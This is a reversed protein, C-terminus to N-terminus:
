IIRRQFGYQAVQKQYNRSVADTVTEGIQRVTDQSANGQITIQVNTSNSPSLVTRSQSPSGFGGGFTAFAPLTFRAPANILQSRLDQITRTNDKIALTNETIAFTNNLIFPDPEPKKPKKGFLGGFITGVIEGAIGILPAFPGGVAVGIGAGIAGLLNGGTAAGGPSPLSRGLSASLSSGVVAFATTAALTKANIRQKESIEALSLVKEDIASQKLVLGADVISKNAESFATGEGIDPMTLGLKNLGRNSIPSGLEGATTVGLKGLGSAAETIGLHHAEVIKSAQYDAALRIADSVLKAHLDGAEQISKQMENAQSTFGLGERLVRDLQEKLINTNAQRFANNIGAALQKGANIFMNGVSQEKIKENLDDIQKQTQRIEYQQRQWQESGYEINKALESQQEIMRDQTDVLQKELEVQADYGQRIADPLNFFSSVISDATTTIAEGINKIGSLLTEFNFVSDGVLQLSILLNRIEGNLKDIEESSQQAPNILADEFLKKIQILNEERNKSNKVLAAYAEDVKKTQASDPTLGGGPLKAKDIISKIEALKQSFNSMNLADNMSKKLSEFSMTKVQEMIKLEEKLQKLARQKDSIEQKIQARKDFGAASAIEGTLNNIVEYVGRQEELVSNIERLAGHYEVVGALALNIQRQIEQRMMMQEGALEEGIAFIDFPMKDGAGLLGSMAKLAAILEEPNSADNFAKALGVGTSLQKGIEDYGKIVDRLDSKTKIFEQKSKIQSDLNIQQIAGLMKYKSSIQGIANLVDIAIEGEMKSKAVMQDRLILLAAEATIQERLANQTGQIGGTIKGIVIVIENFIKKIDEATLNVNNGGNNINAIESTIINLRSALTGAAKAGDKMGAFNEKSLIGISQFTDILTKARILLALKDSGVDFGEVKIKEQNKFADLADLGLPVSTLPAVARKPIQGTLQNFEELTIIDKVLGGTVNSRAFEYTAERMGDISQALGRMVKSAKLADREVRRIGTSLEEFLSSRAISKELQALLASPIGTSVRTIRDAEIRLSNLQDANMDGADGAQELLNAIDVAQIGFEAFAATLREEEERWRATKDALEELQRSAELLKNLRERPVDFSEGMSTQKLAILIGKGKAVEGITERIAQRIKLLPGVLSSVIENKQTDSLILGKSYLEKADALDLLRKRNAAIETEGSGILANFIEQARSAAETEMRQAIQAETLHKGTGQVKRLTKEYEKLGASVGNVKKLLDNYADESMGAAKANELLPGITDKIQAALNESPGKVNIGFNVIGTASSLFAIQQGINTGKGTAKLSEKQADRLDLLKNIYDETFDIQAKIGEVAVLAEMKNAKAKNEIAKQTKIVSEALVRNLRAEDNILAEQGKADLTSMVASFNPLNKRVKTILEDRKNAAIARDTENRATDHVIQNYLAAENAISTALNLRRQQQKIIAREQEITATNFIDQRRQIKDADFDNAKKKSIAQFGKEIAFMGAMVALMPWFSSVLGVIAFKVVGFFTSIAKGMRGLTGVGKAATALAAVEAGVPVIPPKKPYRLPRLPVPGTGATGAVAAVVGAGANRGLALNQANIAATQEWYLTTVQQETVGIKALAAQWAAANPVSSKLSANYANTANTLLNIQRTSLNNLANEKTKMIKTAGFIGKTEEPMNIKSALAPILFMRAINNQVDMLQKGLKLGILAGATKAFVSFGTVFAPDKMLQVVRNLAFALDKFFDLLSNGLVDTTLVRTFLDQFSTGLMRYQTVTAGLEQANARQANGQALVADETASVAEGYNEMLTIFDAYRRTGGIATAIAIRQTTNLTSWRGAIDDIIESADRLVGNADFVAIRVGNFGSTLAKVVEPRQFRAFITKFSNGIERGSKRSVSVVATIIGLFEEFSVGVTKGATGVVRLAGALDQTTVAYAAQVKVLKDIVTELESVEFRYTKVASIILETSEQLNLGAANVGLIAVEALQFSESLSFGAQAFTQTSELVEKVGVGFKLALEFSRKALIQFSSSTLDAVKALRAIQLEVDLAAKTSESFAQYAQQMAMFAVRYRIIKQIAITLQENFSSFSKGTALTLSQFTGMEKSAAAVASSTERVGRPDFLVPTGRKDSVTPGTTSTARTSVDRLADLSLQEVRAQRQGKSLASDKIVANLREEVGVLERALKLKQRYTLADVGGLESVQRAVDIEKVRANLVGRIESNQSAVSVLSDKHVGLINGLVGAYEKVTTLERDRLVQEKQLTALREKELQDANKLADLSEQTKPPGGELEAIKKDEVTRSGRSLFEGLGSGHEAAFLRAEGTAKSRLFAMEVLLQKQAELPSVGLKELEAARRQIEILATWMVVLEAADKRQKGIADVSKPDVAGPQHSINGKADKIRRGGVGQEAASLRTDLVNLAQTAKNLGTQVDPSLRLARFFAEALPTGATLKTNVASVASELNYQARIIPDQRSAALRAAAAGTSPVEKGASPLADRADKRGKAIERAIQREYDLALKSEQVGSRMLSLRDILPQLSAKESDSLLNQQRVARSILNTIERELALLGNSSKITQEYKEPIRQLKELIGSVTKIRAGEKTTLLDTLKLEKDQAALIKAEAIARAEKTALLRQENTGPKGTIEEAKPSQVRALEKSVRLEEIKDRLIEKQTKARNKEDLGLGSTTKSLFQGFQKQDGFIDQVERPKVQNQNSIRSIQQPTISRQVLKQIEELQRKFEKANSTDFIYKSLDIGKTESLKKLVALAAAMADSLGVLQQKADDAKQVVFKLEFQAL